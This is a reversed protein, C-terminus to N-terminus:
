QLSKTFHHKNDCFSLFSSIVTVCYRLACCLLICIVSLLLLLVSSACCYFPLLEYTLVYLDSVYSYQFNLLGYSVTSCYRKTRRSPTQYATMEQLCATVVPDRAPPLNISQTPNLTGSFVNNTM